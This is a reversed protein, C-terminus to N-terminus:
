KEKLGLIELVILLGDAMGDHYEDGSGTHEQMSEHSEKIEKHMQEYSAVKKTLIEMAEHDIQTQVRLGILYDSINTILNKDVEKERLTDLLDGRFDELRRATQSKM